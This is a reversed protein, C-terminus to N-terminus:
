NVIGIQFLHVLNNLLCTKFPDTFQQCSPNTNQAGFHRIAAFSNELPYQNLSRTRLFKFGLNRCTKWLEQTATITTLWGSKFPMRTKSKKDKNLPLFEWKKIKPLLRSWLALHPSKTSICRRYPKGCEPKCTRGNFSDFLQDVDHVCEATNIACAPLNNAPNLM